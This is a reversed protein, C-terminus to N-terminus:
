WFRGSSARRDTLYSLQTNIDFSITQHGNLIDSNKEHEFVKKFENIYKSKEFVEDIQKANLAYCLGTSTIVPMLKM